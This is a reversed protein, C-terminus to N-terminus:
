VGGLRLVNRARRALGMGHVKSLAWHLGVKAVAAMQDGRAGYHRWVWRHVRLADAYRGRDRLRWGIWLLHRRVGQRFEEGGGGGEVRGSWERVLDFIELLTEGRLRATLSEAHPRRLYGVEPIAVVDGASALRCLFDFDATGRRDTSVGGVREWVSRRFAVAPFGSCFNGQWLLRTLMREGAVLRGAGCQRSESLLEEIVPRHQLARGEPSLWEGLTFSCAAEPASELARVHWELAQPRLVDDQELVLLLEGRAAAGGTNIPRAPGGSNEELSLVRMPVPAREALERALAATGDTSCDDVVIIECPPRTQAFVSEVAEALYATGNYTPIIVSVSGNM